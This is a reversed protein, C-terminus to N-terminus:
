SVQWSLNLLLDSSSMNRRPYDVRGLNTLILLTTSRRDTASCGTASFSCLFRLSSSFKSWKVKCLTIISPHSHTTTRLFSSTWSIALSSALSLSLCSWLYSCGMHSCWTSRCVSSLTASIFPMNPDRMFRWTNAYRKVVLRTTTVRQVCAVEM